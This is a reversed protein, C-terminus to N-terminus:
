PSSFGVRRETDEQISLLALAIDSAMPVRNGAIKMTREGIEDFRHRIKFDRFVSGTALTRNLLELLRPYSGEAVQCRSAIERAHIARGAESLCRAIDGRSPLPRAM